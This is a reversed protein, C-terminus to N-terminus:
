YIHKYQKYKIYNNKNNIFCGYKQRNENTEETRKNKRGKEAEKQISYKSKVKIKVTLIDDIAGQFM